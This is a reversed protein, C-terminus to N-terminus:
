RKKRNNHIQINERRKQVSPITAGPSFAEGSQISDGSVGCLYQLQFSTFIFPDQSSEWPFKFSCVISVVSCSTVISMIVPIACAICVCM